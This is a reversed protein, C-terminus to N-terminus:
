PNLRKPLPSYERKRSHLVTHRFAELDQIFVEVDLTGGSGDLSTEFRQLSASFSPYRDGIGKFGERALTPDLRSTWLYFLRYSQSLSGKRLVHLLADFRGKESAEYAKKRQQLYQKLRPALLWILLLLLAAMGTLLTLRKKQAAKKADIEIQPDPIIEFQMEPIVANQLKETRSNWWLIKRAPVTVNGEQGAVFTFRDRRSVDDEGKMGSQLEPEKDYVRLFASSSYIIPPLLIDPIGKAEQTVTLTVADGVILRTSMPQRESTVKYRDTVLVFQDNKVGKPAKVDFHLAESHLDFRKKPQGYGMSATFSVPISAITIKGARLPYVEYEYHVMQWEEGDIEERGLYAASQPAQVIYRETSPFRINADTISFANSLLEVAVTVKQSTYVTKDSTIFVRVKGNVAFLNGTLLLLLWLLNLAYKGPM